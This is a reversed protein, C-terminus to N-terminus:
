KLFIEKFVWLCILFWVTIYVLQLFSLRKSYAKQIFPMFEKYYMMFGIGFALSSFAVVAFIQVISLEKILYFFIIIALMVFIFMSIKHSYIPKAIKEYCFDKNVIVVIIKILSIIVFLGAIMEIPTLVM